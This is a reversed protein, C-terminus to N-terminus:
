ASTTRSAIVHAIHWQKTIVAVYITDNRAIVVVMFGAYM